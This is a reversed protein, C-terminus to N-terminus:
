VDFRTIYWTTINSVNKINTNYEMDSTKTKNNTTTNKTNQKTKM